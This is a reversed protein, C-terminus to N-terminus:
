RRGPQSLDDVRGNPWLVFRSAAPERWGMESLWLRDDATLAALVACRRQEAARQPAERRWRRNGSIIPGYLVRGTWWIWSALAALMALAVLVALVYRM